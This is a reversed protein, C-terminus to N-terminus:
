AYRPSLYAQICPSDKWAWSHSRLVWSAKEKVSSSCNAQLVLCLKAVAGVNVMEQLLENTASCRCLTSLIRVGLEDAAPSMRLIRKAVAAIGAAHKVLEARGEACACLQNLLGLNLETTRKEPMTLELELAERVGGAEAIKVRNRGWPCAQLLVKLAARAVPQPVRDRLVSLVALFFEPKLQELTRPNAVEVISKLILAANSRTEHSATAGQLFIRTMADLVRHGSGDVVPKLDNPPARLSLLVGLAVEVHNIIQKKEASAAVIVELVAAAAGSQLMCRRNSESEKALAAMLGLSDLRRGPPASLDRLLKDVTPRDVPARPTPIRKVGGSAHGDCWAQILRRLTHNPTLASHDRPLPQQTAPCPAADAATAPTSFLWREISERDYTIGTITTVPDRMIELSIPCLFYQPVEISDM